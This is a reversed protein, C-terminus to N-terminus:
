DNCVHITFVYIFGLSVNKYGCKSLVIQGLAPQKDFMFNIGARPSIVLLRLLKCSM